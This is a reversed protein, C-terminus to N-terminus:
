QKKISIQIILDPSNDYSRNPFPIDSSNRWTQIDAKEVFFTCNFPGFQHSFSLGDEITFFRFHPNQMAKERYKYPGSGDDSGPYILHVSGVPGLGTIQEKVDLMDITVEGTRDCAFRVFMLYYHDAVSNPTPIVGAYGWHCKSMDHSIFIGGKGRLERYKYTCHWTGSSDRTCTCEDSPKQTTTTENPQAEGVVFNVETYPGVGPDYQGVPKSGYYNKVPAFALVMPCRLHYTGAKSPATFSFPISLLRPEGVSGKYIRALETTPTWDGFLSIYIAAGSSQRASDKIRLGVRGRILQGPYIKDPMQFEHFGIIWDGGAGQSPLRLANEIRFWDTTTGSPKRTTDVVMTEPREPTPKSAGKTTVTVRQGSWDINVTAGFREFLNVPIAPMANMLDFEVVAWYGNWKEGNRLLVEPYGPKRFAELRNLVNDDGYQPTVQESSMNVGIYNCVSVATWSAIYVASRKEEAIENSKDLISFVDVFPNDLREDGLYIQWKKSIILGKVLSRVRYEMEQGEVIGTDRRALAQRLQLIRTKAESPYDVSTRQGSDIVTEFYKIAAKAHSANKEAEFRQFYAEGVFFNCRAYRGDYEPSGPVCRNLAKMLYELAATPNNNTLEKRGKYLLDEVEEGARAGALFAALLITFVSLTERTYKTLVM